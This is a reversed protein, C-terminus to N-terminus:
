ERVLNPNLRVERTPYPFLLDNEEFAASNPRSSSVFGIINVILNNGPDFTKRTRLMDFWLQNEFCLEWYREKQINELSLSTPKEDESLARSRVAFYADIASQDSTTGGDVNVKAEALILLIDSYKILPYSRGSALGSEAATQDWFKYVWPRGLDAIVNPDGVSAHETYFYGGSQARLDGELYSNVYLEEPMMAGGASGGSTTIKPTPEPYPLFDTHMPSGANRSEKQIMFINEGKNENEESRLDAYSDFIRFKGSSVVEKAVDYAKQYYSTEQLPYGAMTLYVRAQLSKIAGKAVRGNGDVWNSEPMLSNAEELDQEILTYVDKVPTLPIAVNSLDATPTDKLPIPGFLRVLDFYYYARFFHAEALYKNKTEVSMIGADMTNIGAIVGNCNEIAIYGMKWLREVIYNDAVVNLDRFQSMHSGGTIGTNTVYGTLYELSLYTSTGAGIDGVLKDDLYTYLGNVAAAVQSESTFYFDPSLFTKPEEELFSDCASFSLAAILTFTYLFYKRM